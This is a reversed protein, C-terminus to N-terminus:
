RGERIVFDFHVYFEGRSWKPVPMAHLSDFIIHYVAEPASPSASGGFTPRKDTSLSEARVSLKFSPSDAPVAEVVCKEVAHVFQALEEEAVPDSLPWDRSPDPLVSETTVKAGAPISSLRRTLDKFLQYHRERAEAELRSGEERTAAVRDRGVSRDIEPESVSNYGAAHGLIKEDVMCQAVARIEIQHRNRLISSGSGAGFGYEEIALIGAAVDKEADARGAWYASYYQWMSWPTMHVGWPLGFEQPAVMSYFRVPLFLAVAAVLMFVAFRVASRGRHLALVVPWFFWFTVLGVWLRLRWAVETGSLLLFALGFVAVAHALALYGLHNYTRASPSPTTM